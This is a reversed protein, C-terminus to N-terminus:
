LAGFPVAWLGNGFSLAQTGNYLVIGTTFDAGGLSQLRRLGKFDSNQVTSSAKVEIGMVQGDPSELVFDVEVQDKDRFHFIRWPEDHTHIAKVLEAHVWTELTAGFREHHQLLKTKDLRMLSAQLGADLFHLKPTKVLRNLANKSWAPVRKILFLHELIEVYRETTGASLGLQGGLQVANFLQACQAACADLLKPVQALQQVHAIDRVDREVLSKVYASAWHQRRLATPRQRMDPYGGALVHEAWDVQAPLPWQQNSIPWDQSLAHAFFQSQVGKLEAQSFPMLTHVAMRGALSDGMQPLAMLNASGTLLFRGPRRDEDIVLKLALLLQPARQVEDIVARDLGRVFGL